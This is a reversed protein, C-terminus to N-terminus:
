RFMQSAQMLGTAMRIGLDADYVVGPFQPRLDSRATWLQVGMLFTAPFRLSSLGSSLESPRRHIEGPGVIRIERGQCQM